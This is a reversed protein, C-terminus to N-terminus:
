VDLILEFIFAGARAVVGIMLKFDVIELRRVGM